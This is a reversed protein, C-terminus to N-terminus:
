RPTGLLGAVTRERSKVMQKAKEQQLRAMNEAQQLLIDTSLLLVPLVSQFVKFMDAHHIRLLSCM